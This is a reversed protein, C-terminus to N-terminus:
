GLQIVTIAESGAVAFRHNRPELATPPAPADSVIISSNQRGSNIEPWRHVTKGTRLDILRPHEYFGVIHDGLPMLTGAPEELTVRSIVRNESVSFVGLFPVEEEYTAGALIVTDNDIFAASHIEELHAEDIGDISVTFGNENRDLSQPERLAEEISYVQIFDLPHWIWGASM